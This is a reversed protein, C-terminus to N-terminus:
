SDSKVCAAELRKIFSDMYNELRMVSAAMLRRSLCPGDTLAFTGASQFSIDRCRAVTVPATGEVQKPNYMSLDVVIPEAM